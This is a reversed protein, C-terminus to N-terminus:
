QLLAVFRELNSRFLEFRFNLIVPQYTLNLQLAGPTRVAAAAAAVTYPTLLKEPRPRILSPCASTPRDRNGRRDNTRDNTRENAEM